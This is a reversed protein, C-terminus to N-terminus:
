RARDPRPLHGVRHAAPQRRRRRGAVAARGHPGVAGHVAARRRRAGPHTGDPGVYHGDGGMTYGQSEILQHAKDPQVRRTAGPHGRGSRSVAGAGQLSPFIFNSVASDGGAGEYVVDVIQRRNMAYSLAHRMEKKDWPAITTNLTLMRPCPDVWGNIGSYPTLKPNQALMASQTSPTTAGGIDSDNTVLAQQATADDGIWPRHIELPAPLKFAGTKAGWWNDNRKYDWETSSFNKVVYPGSVMADTGNNWQNKFTVPDVNEGVKKPLPVIAQSTTGALYSLVFFPDPANLTIKVTRDDVAVASAMENKIPISFNLLPAHTKLM